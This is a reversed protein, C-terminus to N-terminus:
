DDESAVADSAERLEASIFEQAHTTIDRLEPIEKGAPVGYEPFRRAAPLARRELSGAGRNFSTVASELSNRM